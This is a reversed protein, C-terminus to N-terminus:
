SNFDLNCPMSACPLSPPLSFFLISIPILVCLIETKIEDWVCSFTAIAAVLWSRPSGFIYTIWAIWLIISKWMLYRIKLLLKRKKKEVVVEEREDREVNDIFLDLKHLISSIIMWGNMTSFSHIHTYQYCWCSFLCFDACLLFYTSCM